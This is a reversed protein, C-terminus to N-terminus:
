ELDIWEGQLSTQRGKYTIVYAGLSGIHRNKSFSLPPTLGTQFQYFSELKSILQQRDLQRGAKRLAEVLIKAATYASIKVQLHHQSLPASQLNALERRGWPRRDVPLTPYSLHLRGSFSDPATSLIKGALVGPILIEGPWKKKDMAALFTEAQQENGLFILLDSTAATATTQETTLTEPRYSRKAVQPWHFNAAASDIEAVLQDLGRNEPYVIALKPLAARQQTKYKLLASIQEQLGSYLYFSYRNRAYSTQPFLTFPGIAPLLTSEQLANLDARPDTLVPSLLAFPQHKDLWGAVKAAPFSGDGPLPYIALKLKRGFIGGAANVQTFYAGLIQEIAEGLPALSGELPVLTAIVIEQASVGPPDLTGLRQLYAALDDLDQESMDYLPM